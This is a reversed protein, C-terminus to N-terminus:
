RFPNLMCNDILRTQGIFVAIAMVVPRDIIDVDRLTEPNCIKIYDIKAEKITQIHNRAADIITHAETEGNTIREKAHTLIQYLCRASLRQDKSLYANRSSMALGDPERVIRGSIIQIDFDLDKVMRKIITLQQFDKEGFVAVHPKAVHFLKTVVTTVGQFHTPRSQGCLRKALEGVQVTTEFGEPYMATSEPCFLIDVHEARALQKDQEFNQPYKALDEGPAFQTPNVFLSTVLVDGHDRGIRM